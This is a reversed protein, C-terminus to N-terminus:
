RDGSILKIGMAWQCNGPQIQKARGQQDLHTAVIKPLGVGMMFGLENFNYTDCDLIGYKERTNSFLNFWANIVDPDECLARRYDYIRNVRTKLCPESTVLREAWNIGVAGGGRDRLLSNAM